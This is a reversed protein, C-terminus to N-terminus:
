LFGISMGGKRPTSHTRCCCFACLKSTVAMWWGEVARVTATVRNEKVCCWLSFFIRLRLLPMDDATFETAECSVPPTSYLLTSYLLTSHLLTSYPTRKGWCGDRPKRAEASSRPIQLRARMERTLLRAHARTAHPSVRLSLCVRAKIGGDEDQQHSICHGTISDSIGHLTRRASQPARSPSSLCLGWGGRVAPFFVFCGM